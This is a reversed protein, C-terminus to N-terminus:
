RPVANTGVTAAAPPAPAVANPTATPVASSSANVETAATQADPKYPDLWKPLVGYWHHSLTLWLLSLVYLYLGVIFIKQVLTAPLGEEPSAKASQDQSAARSPASQKQPANM